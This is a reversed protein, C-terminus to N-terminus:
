LNICKGHCSMSGYTKGDKVEKFTFLKCDACSIIKRVKLKKVKVKQEKELKIEDERILESLGKDKDVYSHSPKSGKMGRHVVKEQTIKKMLEAGKNSRFM